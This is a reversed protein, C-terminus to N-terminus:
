ILLSHSNHIWENGLTVQRWAIETITHFLSLIQCVKDNVAVVNGKDGRPAKSLCPKDAVTELLLADFVIIMGENYIDIGRLIQM